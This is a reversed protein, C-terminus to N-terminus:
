KSTGAAAPARSFAQDAAVRFGLSSVFRNQYMTTYKQYEVISTSVSGGKFVVGGDNHCIESVNGSMDYLGLENPKKQGGLKVQGSNIVQTINLTKRTYRDADTISGGSNGYYWGVETFDNSGAYMYGQSKVGGSAAFEWEVDTPFRYNRGTLTNLAKVFRAADEYPSRSRVAHARSPYQSANKYYLSDQMVIGWQYENVEFRNILFGKVTKTGANSFGKAMTFTGGEVEVMNREIDLVAKLAAEREAEPIYDLKELISNHYNAIAEKRARLAEERREKEKLWATKESPYAALSESIKYVERYKDEIGETESYQQLFRATNKKLETALLLHKEDEFFDNVKELQKFQCVIKLHLIPPNTKGFLKEADTLKSLAETLNGNNYAVEADEFKLKALATQAFTRGSICLLLALM